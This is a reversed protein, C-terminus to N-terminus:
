RKLWFLEATASDPPYVTVPVSKQWQVFVPGATERLGKADFKVRRGPYYLAAGTTLDMARFADAVAHRDAKGTKELAEKMVWMDGYTAIGNQGLWPEGTVKKFDAIVTEQGKADWNGVITVFGELQESSLNQLLEKQAMAIGSGVTPVRGRGLGFENMKEIMLKADSIVTIAMILIDPRTSRVKQVLQTADSLPPTFTEDMVVKLGFKAPGDARIPKVFSLSSATNDTIIGITQLPKGTANQALKAIVPLAENAMEDAKASTQFIYRFGRSTILDSYSLTLMPLEARETVESASLTFSSLYAGSCAVLDPNDSVMRQAANKAKETTDGCDFIRLDFNAGGLSKIGGAANIDRVALKAGEQMLRGFEAYIGSIPALLAIPVTKTAGQAKALQVGAAISAAGGLLARRTTTFDTMTKEGTPGPKEGTAPETV